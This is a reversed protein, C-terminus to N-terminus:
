QTCFVDCFGEPSIQLGDFQTNQATVMFKRTFAHSPTQLKHVSKLLLGSQPQVKFFPYSLAARKAALSRVHVYKLVKMGADRINNSAVSILASINLGNISRPDSYTAWSTMLM